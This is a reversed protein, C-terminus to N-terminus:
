HVSGATLVVDAYDRLCRSKEEWGEESKPPSATGDDDWM